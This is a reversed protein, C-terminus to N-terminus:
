GKGSPKRPAKSRRKPKRASKTRPAKAAPREPAPKEAPAPAGADLRVTVDLKQPKDEEKRGWIDQWKRWGFWALLGALATAATVILALIPDIKAVWMGIRDLTHVDIRITRQEALPKDESIKGGTDDTLIVYLSLQLPWEGELRPTVKWDWRTPNSLLLEHEIRGKPEIDFAAGSLEAEMKMSVKTRGSAVQGPLPGFEKGFDATGSTDIVLAVQVADGVFMTAPHKFRYEREGLGDLIKRKDICGGIRGESLCDDLKLAVRDSPRDAAFKSVDPMCVRADGWAAGLGNCQVPGDQADFFASRPISITSLNDVNLSILGNIESVPSAGPFALLYAGSAGALSVVVIGTAYIQVGDPTPAFYRRLRQFFGAIGM